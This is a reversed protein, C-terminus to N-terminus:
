PPVDRELVEVVVVGHSTDLPEPHVRGVEGTYLIVDLLEAPYGIDGWRLWAPDENGRPSTAHLLGARARSDADNGKRSAIDAFPVGARVEELVERALGMAVSKHVKSFEDRMPWANAHHFVIARAKARRNMEKRFLAELVRGQEPGVRRAFWYGANWEILPTLRGPPTNLFVRDRSEPPRHVGELVAFGEARGGPANSHRRALTGLDAGERVEGYLRRALALAAERTRPPRWGPRDDGRELSHSIWIEQAYARGGAPSALTPFRVAVDRESLVPPPTPGDDRRSFAIVGAVIAVVVLLGVALRGM